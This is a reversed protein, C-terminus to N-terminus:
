SFTFKDALHYGVVCTLGGCRFMLQYSYPPNLATDKNYKIWPVCRRYIYCLRRGSEKQLYIFLLLYDNIERCVVTSYLLTYIYVLHLILVAATKM